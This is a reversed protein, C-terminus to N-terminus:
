WRTLFYLLLWQRGASLDSFKTKSPSFLWKIFRSFLLFGLLGVSSMMAMHFIAEYTPWHTAGMISAAGVSFALIVLYKM